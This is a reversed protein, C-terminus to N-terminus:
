ILCLCCVRCGGLPVRRYSLMLALARFARSLQLVGDSVYRAYRVNVNVESLKLKGMPLCVSLICAQMRACWSVSLQVMSHVFMCNCVM